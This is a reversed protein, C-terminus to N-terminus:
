HNLCQIGLGPTVPQFVVPHSWSRSLREDNRPQDFSYWSNRLVYYYLLSEGRLPKAAKATSGWGYFPAMFNKLFLKPNDGIGSDGFCLSGGYMYNGWGPLVVALTGEM